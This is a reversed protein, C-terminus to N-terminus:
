SGVPLRCSGRGHTFLKGNEGVTQTALQLSDFGLLDQTLKGTSGAGECCVQGSRRIDVPPSFGFAEDLVKTEGPVWQGCLDLRM